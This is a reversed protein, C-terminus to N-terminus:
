TVPCITPAHHKIAHIIHGVYVKAYAAAGAMTREERGDDFRWVSDGNEDPRSAILDRDTLQAYAWELSEMQGTMVSEHATAKIIAM